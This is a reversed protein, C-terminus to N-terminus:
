LMSGRNNDNSVQTEVIEALPYNRIPLVLKQVAKSFAAMLGQAYQLSEDVEVIDTENTNNYEAIYLNLFSSSLPRSEYICRLIEYDLPHKEKKECLISYVKDKLVTPPVGWSSPDAMAYLGFVMKNIDKIKGIEFKIYRMCYGNEIPKKEFALVLEFCDHNESYNPTSEKFCVYYEQGSELSDKEFYDEVVLEETQFYIDGKYKLAGPTICHKDDKMVWELGYLVGDGYASYYGECLFRPFNYISELM